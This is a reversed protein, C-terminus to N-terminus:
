KRGRRALAQEAHEVDSFPQREGALEQYQEHGKGALLVVDNAAAGAIARDIALARDVEFEHPTAIARRIAGIIAAPDEGRPNDSTVMVHDALRAAVEGMLPRKGTDRDGGAGFVAILRGGAAAAVPRLARLVNELADPTHAYDVVVLPQGEGGVRQMRGPVPPLMAVRAAAENLQLGHGMLAGIVALTNWANFRGVQVSAIEAEGMATAVVLRTGTSGYTVSRVAILEDTRPDGAATPSLSYGITRVQAGRLRRAIEVGLADDLNLVAAEVGPMAFLRAKAEAYAEMTGHYDLHDRTLNTFVACRFRIGDVRAQALGHSSVEMAVARAGSDRLAALTGQVELPDPTTNATEALAAGAMGSGLTGIVGSAVGHASLAASIWQTCSTKGNTGTVGCVWMDSSPHGHFAGALASARERLGAVPSNPV